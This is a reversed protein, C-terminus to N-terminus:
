IETEVIKIDAESGVRPLPLIYAETDLIIYKGNQECREIINEFRLLILDDFAVTEFYSYDASYNAYYLLDLLSQLRNKVDRANKLRENFDQARQKDYVTDPDKEAPPLDKLEVDLNILEEVLNARSTNWKIRGDSDTAIATMDGYIMRLKNAIIKLDNFNYDVSKETTCATLLVVFLIIFLLLLRHM